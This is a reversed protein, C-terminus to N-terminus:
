QSAGASANAKKEAEQLHQPYTPDTAAPEYGNQELKTLEASNKARAAKREAKRQAKAQENQEAKTLRQAASSAQATALPASAATQALAPTGAGILFAASAALALRSTSFSM